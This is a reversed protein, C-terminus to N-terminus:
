VLQEWIAVNRKTNYKYINQSNVTISQKSFPEVNQKPSLISKVEEDCLYDDFNRHIHQRPPTSQINLYQRSSSNNSYNSKTSVPSIIPKSISNSNKNNNLEMKKLSFLVDKVSYAKELNNNKLNEYVLENTKAPKSVPNIRKIQAVM